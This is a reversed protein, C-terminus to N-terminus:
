SIPPEPLADTVVKQRATQGSPVAIAGGAMLVPLLTAPWGDLFGPLPVAGTAFLGALTVALAKMAARFKAPDTWLEILFTKM